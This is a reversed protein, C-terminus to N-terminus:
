KLQTQRHDGSEEQHNHAKSNFLKSAQTDAGSKPGIETREVDRPELTTTEPVEAM